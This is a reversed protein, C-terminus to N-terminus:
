RRSVAPIARRFRFPVAPVHSQDAMPADDREKAGPRPCNTASSLSPLGASLATDIDASATSTAPRESRTRRQTLVQYRNYARAAGFSPAEVSQLSTHQANRLTVLQDPPRCLTFSEGLALSAPLAPLDAPRAKARRCREADRIRQLTCRRAPWPSPPQLSQMPNCADESAAISISRSPITAIVKGRTGRPPRM